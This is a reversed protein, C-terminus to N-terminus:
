RRLDGGQTADVLDDAFRRAARMHIMRGSRADHAGRESLVQSLEFGHRDIRHDRGTLLFKTIDSLTIGLTLARAPDDFQEACNRM